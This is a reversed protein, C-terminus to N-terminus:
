AHFKDNKSSGELKESLIQRDGFYRVMAAKGTESLKIWHMRRDHEDEYRVVLGQQELVSIWRLGTSQPVCASRCVSSTSISHGDMAAITLDLLIDWAPDRFLSEDFNRTRLRRSDYMDKAISKIAKDTFTKGFEDNSRDILLFASEDSEGHNSISKSFHESLSVADKAITRLKEVIAKNSLM